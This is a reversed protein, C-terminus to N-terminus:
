EGGHMKGGIGPGAGHDHTAVRRAAGHAMMGIQLASAGARRLARFISWGICIIMLLAGIWIGGPHFPHGFLAGGITSFTTFVLYIGFWSWPNKLWQPFM